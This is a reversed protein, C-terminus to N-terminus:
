CFVDIHCQILRKKIDLYIVDTQSSNDYASALDDIVDLLQLVCSRKERFGYQCNTFLNNDNMHKMLVDRVTKECIKCPICTLSVPRYNSPDTRAGKNKFLASVNADKWINPIQKEEFTKNM